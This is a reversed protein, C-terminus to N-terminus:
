IRPPFRGFDQHAWVAGPPRGENPGTDGAQVGELQTNLVHRRTEDVQALPAPNLFGPETQRPLVDFRLLPQSFPQVGFLPSRPAGTPIQGFASPAFPSLGGKLALVGGATFVGMRILDRRTVKRDAIAKIFEARNRRANEAERVRAKSANLPLYVDHGGERKAGGPAQQNPPMRRCSAVSPGTAGEM